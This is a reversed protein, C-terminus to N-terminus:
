LPFADGPRAIRYGKRVTSLSSPSSPDLLPNTHNLHIFHVKRRTSEPLADLRAMTEAVFPHPIQSMDRSPLEEGDFFTGDVFAYDVSDLLTELRHSWREWKDIDPIFLATKQPGYIMFGVTESYEDRHPVLLPSARLNPSLVFTRENEISELVINRRTVLQSWPGNSELFFRMRPMAYVRIERADMAEKGLYALGVYHGIHAHTLLIGDPADGSDPSLCNRLHHLQRPLDPTAEVLFKKQARRDVLGLSVVTQDGQMGAFKLSCCSRGCGPHPAGGDQANGLVVLWCTSDPVSALAGSSAHSRFASAPLLLIALTWSAASLLNLIPFRM